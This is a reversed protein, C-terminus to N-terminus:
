PVAPARRCDDIAAQYVKGMDRATRQISFLAEVRQRGAAGFAAAQRPNELLRRAAAALQGPDTGGVLLGTADHKVISAPGNARVAIIPKGMAMAECLVRGFPEEATPHVLLDTAQLVDRVDGAQELWHMKEELGLRAAQAHLSTRYRAHEGLLDGGAVAFHVGPHTQAILGAMALFLDHRKWPVLHAVMTVLPAGPPIGCAHRAQTPDRPAFRALDIGNVVCTLRSRPSGHLFEALVADVAESNAVIRNARQAVRLLLRRSFRLDRVHCVFPYDVALPVVVRGSAISNAHIVDPAFARAARGLAISACARAFGRLCYRPDLRARYCPIAKVPIKAEELAKHLPGKPVAALVAVGEKTLQGALELLSWQAGGLVPVTEVLLVRM